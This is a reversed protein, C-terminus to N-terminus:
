PQANVSGPPQNGGAPLQAPTNGNILPNALPALAAPKSAVPQMAPPAAVTAAAPQAQDLPKPPQQMGTQNKLVNSNTALPATQPKGATLPQASVPKAAMQEAGTLGPLPQPAIKPSAVSRDIGTQLQTEPRSTVSPPAVHHDIGGTQFTPVSVQIGEGLPLPPAASQRQYGAWGQWVAAIAMVALATLLWARRKKDQERIVRVKARGFITHIIKAEGIDTWIGARPQTNSAMLRHDPIDFRNIKHGM